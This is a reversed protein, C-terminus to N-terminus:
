PREGHEFRASRAIDIIDRLARSPEALTHNAGPTSWYRVVTEAYQEDFYGGDNALASCGYDTVLVDGKDFRLTVEAPVDAGRGLPGLLLLQGGSLGGHPIVAAAAKRVDDVTPSGKVEVWTGSEPLYFDPLYPGSWVNGAHGGIVYGQPEYEWRIGAHDFAVAWRAELRSRFRHGAYHTEIANILM